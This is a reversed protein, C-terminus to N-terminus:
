IDEKKGRKVSSAFSPIFFLKASATSLPFPHDTVRLELRTREAAAGAGGGGELALDEKLAAGGEEEEEVLAGGGAGETMKVRRGNVKWPSSRLSPDM